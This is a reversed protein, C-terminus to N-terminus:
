QDLKRKFTGFLRKIRGNQWPCGPDSRQQRIGALLLVSGFARSNVVRFRGAAERIASRKLDLAISPRM